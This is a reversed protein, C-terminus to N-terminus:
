AKVLIARDAGMALSNRLQEEVETSGISVVVVETDPQKEKIQVAEEVAIADFPNVVFPGDWALSKGDSAVQVPSEYDAVRKITVLIKM